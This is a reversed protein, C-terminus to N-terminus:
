FHISLGLYDFTIQTVLHHSTVFSVQHRSQRSHGGHMGHTRTIRYALAEIHLDAGSLLRGEAM